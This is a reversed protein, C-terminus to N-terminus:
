WKGLFCWTFWLTQKFVCFQSWVIYMALM